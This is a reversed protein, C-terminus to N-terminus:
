PGTPSPPSEGGGPVPADASRAAGPACRGLDQLDVGLRANSPPQRYPTVSTVSRTKRDYVYPRGEPDPPASAIYGAAMLQNLSAPAFGRDREFCRVLATLRACDIYATLDRVHWRAIARTTEDDVDLLDEWAALEQQAVDRVKLKALFRAALLDGSAMGKELYSEVLDQRQLRRATMAAEIAMWTFEPDNRLAKDALRFADDPSQAEVLLSVYGLWYADRFLPDLETITDYVRNLWALRSARDVAPDGFHQISWLYLADALTTRHGFSLLRVSKPSPFYLPTAREELQAHSAVLSQRAHLFSISGAALVLLGVLPGRLPHGSM